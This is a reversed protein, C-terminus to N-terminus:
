NEGQKMYSLAIIYLHIKREIWFIENKKYYKLIVYM